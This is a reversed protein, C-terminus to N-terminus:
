HDTDQQSLDIMQRVYQIQTVSHYDPPPMGTKSELTNHGEGRLIHEQQPTCQEKSQERSKKVRHNVVQSFFNSELDQCEHV